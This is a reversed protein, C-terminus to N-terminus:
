LGAQYRESIESGNLARSYVKVENILGNFKEINGGTAPGSIQFHKDTDSFDSLGITTRSSKLDGNVYLKMGDSKESEYTFVIYTWDLLENPADTTIIYQGDIANRIGARLKDQAFYYDIAYKLNKGALGMVNSIGSSPNSDKKAWLELTFDDTNTLDLSSDNGCDVYNSIGDFSLSPNYQGEAWLAGSVIGNNQYGSGDYAIFGSNEDFSWDGVIRNQNQTLEFFIYFGAKDSQVINGVAIDLSWEVRFDRTESNLLLYNFLDGQLIGKAKGQYVLTDTGLLFIDDLDEDIYILLDLNEALEGLGEGPNGCSSDPLVIDNLEPEVCEMEDNVRNEFTIHLYGDINGNNALVAEESSNDGPKINDINFGWTTPDNDGVKLNLTGATFVNGVSTETDSFYAVSGGIIIAAAAAVIALSLIIKKM